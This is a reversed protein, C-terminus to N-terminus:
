RAAIARPEEDASPGQWGGGIARILRVSAQLRRTSIESADRRADLAATEATVVELYNVAGQRYRTLALSEARNAADVAGGEEDAEQALHNLLALQDEVEQFAALVDAKYAGAAIAREDKAARVVARRRGADFLTFAASPGVSWFSDPASLLNTSGTNQVGGIGTLTITPFFAARAVGIEANAAAVRREAAAVDPRRQLLESPLGPPTRPVPGQTAAPAIAFSSAAEGALSAIAHEYLARQGAVDSVQAKAGQLQAAARSVDLGTAVGGAHRTATLTYARGYAAVADKLLQEQADAGRLRMYADALEAQLSLRVGELDAQEAQAEAKGAAVANRIRGWLDLEYNFQGDLTNAGYYSPQGAGRLPRNTSQKNTTGQGALGITPLLTSRTEALFAQAEDYRALAEALTPNQGEIKAELGNLTADGYLTWWASRPLADAPKALSWPGIEKFAPPTPTEPVKYPPAFSCAQLCAAGTALCLLTKLKM